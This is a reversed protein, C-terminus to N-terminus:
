FDETFEFKPKQLIKSDFYNDTTIEFFNNKDFLDIKEMFKFPNKVNYLKDYGLQILLYDAVYKIYDNMSEKNIGILACPIAENIFEMELEVAENIIKHIIKKRLKNKLLNHITCALAVHLAEDRSIFKNSKRLGSLIAKNKTKLWFISAFPGSFFIGEVAAFAILKHAFTYDGEIYKYCWDKMKKIEPLYKVANLLKNKTENDKIFVDLLISYMEGHCNEMEFQKGYACEAEKIKVKDILNEKINANVIGDASAFFALIHMFFNRENETLENTWDDYDTSMDVEEVVWNVRLQNKYNNWVSKYEIPYVTFRSNEESLIPENIIKDTFDKELHHYIDMHSNKNDNIEEYFNEKFEELMAINKWDQSLDDYINKNLKDQEDLVKNMDKYDQESQHNNINHNM